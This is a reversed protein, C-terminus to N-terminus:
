SGSQERKSRFWSVGVVRTVLYVAVLFIAFQVVWQVLTLVEMRQDGGVTDLRAFANLRM